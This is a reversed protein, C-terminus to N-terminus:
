RKASMKKLNRMKRKGNKQCTSQETTQIDQTGIIRVHLCQKWDNQRKQHIEESIKNCSYHEKHIQPSVLSSIIKKATKLERKFRILSDRLGSIKCSLNLNEDSLNKATKIRMHSASKEIFEEDSSTDSELHEEKAKKIRWKRVHEDQNSRHSKTEADHKRGNFRCVYTFHDYKNCIECQAGYAPCNRGKRHVGTLGCYSCTDSTFYTDSNDINGQQAKVKHIEKNYYNPKMEQTQASIDEIQQAEM